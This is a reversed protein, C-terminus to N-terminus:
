KLLMTAYNSINPSGRYYRAPSYGRDATSLFRIRSAALLLAYKVRRAKFVINLCLGIDGCDGLEGGRGPFFSMGVGRRVIGGADSGSLISLGATAPLAPIDM